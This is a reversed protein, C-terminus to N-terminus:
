IFETLEVAVTYDVGLNQTRLDAVTETYLTMSVQYHYGDLDQLWLTNPITEYSHQLQDRLQQGLPGLASGDYRKLSNTCLLNMTWVRQAPGRDLLRVPATGTKETPLKPPSYSPKGTTVPATPGVTAAPTGMVAGFYARRPRVMKYTGPEVFYGNGDLIIQCDHGIIPSGSHFPPTDGPM